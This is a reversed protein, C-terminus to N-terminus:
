KGAGGSTPSLENLAFEGEDDTFCAFLRGNSAMLRGNEGAALKFRGLMKGTRTVLYGEMNNYFPSSLFVLFQDKGVPLVQNYYPMKEAYSASFFNQKKFWPDEQHEKIDEKTVERRTLPPSVTQKLKGNKDYIQFSPKSPDAVIIEESARNYAMSLDEAFINLQVKRNGDRNEWKWTKDQVKVIELLETKNLDYIAAKRFPVDSFYSSFYVAFRDEALVRFTEVRGREINFNFSRVFKLDMGFLSVKRAGGDFVYLYDGMTNVYAQAGGAGASFVFEGPGEGQNGYSTLFSGEQDWVFVTRSRLDVMHLRGKADLTADGPRQMFLEYDEPVLEYQRVSQFSVPASPELCLLLMLWM